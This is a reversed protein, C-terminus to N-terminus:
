REVPDGEPLEGSGPPVPDHPADAGREIGSGPEQGALADDQQLRLDTDAHPVAENAPSSQAVNQAPVDDAVDRQTAGEQTDKEDFLGLFKASALQRLMSEPIPDPLSYDDAYVDMMDRVNFRPDAFLKKVAANKVEPAVEPAVFRRFDSEFTLARVDEISPGPPKRPVAGPPPGPEATVQLDQPVEPPRPLAQSAPEEQAEITDKEERPKGARVDQKRRSWRSLFGEDAM